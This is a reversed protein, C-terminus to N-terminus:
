RQAIDNVFAVNLIENIFLNDRGKIWMRSVCDWGHIWLNPSLSLTTTIGSIHHPLTVSTMKLGRKLIRSAASIQRFTNKLHKDIRQSQKCSNVIQPIELLNKQLSGVLCWFCTVSVFKINCKWKQTNKCKWQFCLCLCLHCSSFTHSAFEHEALRWRAENWEHCRLTRSVSPGGHRHTHLLPGGHRVDEDEGEGNSHADM